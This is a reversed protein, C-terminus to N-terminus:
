EWDEGYYEIMQEYLKGDLDLRAGMWWRPYDISFWGGDVTRVFYLPAEDFDSEAKVFYDTIPNFLWYCEKVELEWAELLPGNDCEKFPIIDIITCTYHRTPRIKGDDFIHYTKNLEPVPKM